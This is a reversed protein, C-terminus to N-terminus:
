VTGAAAKKARSLKPKKVTKKKAKPPIITISDNAWKEHITKQKAM